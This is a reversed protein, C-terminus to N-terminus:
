LLIEEEAGEGWNGGESSDDSDTSMLEVKDDGGNDAAAEEDEEEYDSCVGTDEGGAGREGQGDVKGDHDDDDDEVPPRDAVDENGVAGA